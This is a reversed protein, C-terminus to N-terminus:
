GEMVCIKIDTHCTYIQMNSLFSFRPSASGQLVGPIAHIAVEAADWNHCDM